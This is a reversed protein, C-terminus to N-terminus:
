SAVPTGPSPIDIPILGETDLEGRKMKDVLVRLDTFQQVKDSKKILMIHILMEPVIIRHVYIVQYQVVRGSTSSVVYFLTEAPDLLSQQNM